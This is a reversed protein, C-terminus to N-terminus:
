TIFYQPKKLSHKILRDYLLPTTLKSPDKYLDQKKALGGFCTGQMDKPSHHGRVEQCAWWKLRHIVLDM